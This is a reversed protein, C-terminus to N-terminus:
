SNACMFTFMQEYWDDEKQRFLKL